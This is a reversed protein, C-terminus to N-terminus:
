MLSKLRNFGPTIVFGTTDSTKSEIVTAKSNFAAQTDLNIVNSIKNEIEVAEIIM